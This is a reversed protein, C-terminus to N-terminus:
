MVTVVPPRDVLNAADEESVAGEGMEGDTTEDEATPATAESVEFGLDAAVIAATDYDIVQNMTAFIGSKILAQIVAAPRLGLLNALDEVTMMPPLELARPAVAVGNGGQAGPDEVTSSPAFPGRRNANNPRGRNGGPRPRSRGGGGRRFPRPSM